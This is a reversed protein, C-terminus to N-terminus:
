PWRLPSASVEAAAGDARAEPTIGAGAVEGASDILAESM